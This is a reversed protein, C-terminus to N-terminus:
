SLQHCKSQNILTYTVQFDQISKILSFKTHVGNDNMIIIVIFKLLIYMTDM